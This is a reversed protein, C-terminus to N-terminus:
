YNSKPTIVGYHMKIRKLRDTMASKLSDYSSEYYLNKMERPDEKLDYLEWEDLEYFHMLKYREGTVGEHKRVSHVAPFEYYHYYLFERWNEPKSDTMLPLLSKGQMRDPAQIKAMDLFTQAFDLNSVLQDNTIGSPITGKWQMLLPTRFSEEYMFRKDFWGHEGLYFGQDSTYVVLTNETLGNEELYDLVRGVNDDVSRITALYDKMYRQYKWQILDKGELGRAQFDAIIPDYTADWNARQEANMRAYTRNFIAGKKNAETWIKLDSALDMTKEISMDQTKAATGRSSYDDFLNEPEPFTLDEYLDLHAPGKEWKRHPAKHQLMLMFPKSGKSNEALWKLSKDTIIDTVYGEAISTDTASIIDPNYYHGQGPLIEWHDFGTPVSKLHWKGILATNYGNDKLLKPFTIQSGDFTNGNTRHGNVHSHTGTLVTARSPACISNTVYARNFLIGNEAIRDINPTPALDALRSQYASIAQYAHDDTFIFVINPSKVDETTNESEESCATMILWFSFIFSKTLWYRYFQKKM